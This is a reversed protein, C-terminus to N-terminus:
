VIGRGITPHCDVYYKFDPAICSSFSLKESLTIFDICDVQVTKNDFNHLINCYNSKTIM